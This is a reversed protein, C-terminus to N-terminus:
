GATVYLLILGLILLLFCFGGAIEEVVQHTPMDGFLAKRLNNM